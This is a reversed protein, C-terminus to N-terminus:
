GKDVFGLITKTVGDSGKIENISNANMNITSVYQTKIDSKKHLTKGKHFKVGGLKATISHPKKDSNKLSLIHRFSKIKELQDINLRESM